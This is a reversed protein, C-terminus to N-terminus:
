TASPLFSFVPAFGLKTSRRWAVNQYRLMFWSSGSKLPLEFSDCATLQAISRGCITRWCPALAPTTVDCIRGYPKGPWLALATYGTTAELLGFKVFAFASALPLVRPPFQRKQVNLVVNPGGTACTTWYSRLCIPRF